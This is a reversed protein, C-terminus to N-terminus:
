EVLKQLDVTFNGANAALGHQVHRGTVNHIERGIVNFTQNIHANRWMKDDKNGDHKCDDGCEDVFLYRGM